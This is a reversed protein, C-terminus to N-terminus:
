QPHLYKIQVYGNVKELTVWGLGILEIEVSRGEPLHDYAKVTDKTYKLIINLLEKDQKDVGAFFTHIRALELEQEDTLKFDGVIVDWIQGIKTFFAM